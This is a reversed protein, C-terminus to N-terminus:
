NAKKLVITGASLIMRYERHGDEGAYTFEDFLRLNDASLDKNGNKDVHETKLFTSDYRSSLRNANEVNSKIRSDLATLESEVFITKGALTISADSVSISTASLTSASLATASLNAIAAIGTVDLRKTLVQDSSISAASLRAVSASVEIDAVSFAMRGKITDGSLHM